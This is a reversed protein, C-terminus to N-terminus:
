ARLHKANAVVILSITTFNKIKEVYFENYYKAFNRVM